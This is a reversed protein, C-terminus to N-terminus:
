WQGRVAFVSTGKLGLISRSNGKTAGWVAVWAVKVVSQNCIRLKSCTPMCSLKKQIPHLNTLLRSTPAPWDATRAFGVRTQGTECWGNLLESKLQLFKLDECCDRGAWADERTGSWGAPSLGGNKQTWGTKPTTKARSRTPTDNLYPDAM